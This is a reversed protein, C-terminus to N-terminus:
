AGRAAVHTARRPARRVLVRLRRRRVVGRPRYRPDAVGRRPDCRDLLRDRRLAAAAGLAQHGHRLRRQGPAPRRRARPDQAARRHDAQDAPPGPRRRLARPRVAGPATRLSRHQRRRGGQLPHRRRLHGGPRCRRHRRASSRPHERPLTGELEPLCGRRTSAHHGHPGRDPYRDKHATPSGFARMPHQRGTYSRSRSASM